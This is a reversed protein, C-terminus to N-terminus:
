LGCGMKFEARDWPFNFFGSYDPRCANKKGGIWEDPKLPLRASETVNLCPHNRSVARQNNSAVGRDKQGFVINM